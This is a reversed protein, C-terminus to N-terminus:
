RRPGPTNHAASLSGGGVGGGQAVPTPKIKEWAVVEATKILQLTRKTRETFAANRRQSTRGHLSAALDLPKIVTEPPLPPSLKDNGM